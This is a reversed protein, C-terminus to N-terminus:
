SLRTLGLLYASEADAPNLRSAASLDAAATQLRARRQDGTASLADSLSAKAMVYFSSAKLQALLAPWESERVSSPHKFRDLYELADRASAEGDSLLGQALQANALPVLLLPNEPFLRLSQRAYSIAAPLEGLDISAKAAIEYVEALLWSDPYETLFVRAAKLRPAPATMKYLDVFASREKPREIQDLITFEKPAAGFIATDLTQAAASVRVIGLLVCASVLRSIPSRGLM